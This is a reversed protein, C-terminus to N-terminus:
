IAEITIKNFHHLRNRNILCARIDGLSINVYSFDINDKSQLYSILPFASFHNNFMNAKRIDLANSLIDQLSFIGPLGNLKIEEGEIQRKVESVSLPAIAIAAAIRM